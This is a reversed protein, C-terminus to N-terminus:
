QRLSELMAVAMDTAGDLYKKSTPLRSLNAIGFSTAALSAAVSRTDEWVIEGADRARDLPDQLMAIFRENHEAIAAAIAPDRDGVESMAICALCGRNKTKKRRDRWSDVFGVLDSLPSDTQNLRRSHARIRTESYREIALLFLGRKNGFTNYLSQRAIGLDELLQSLSAGRYGHSWFSQVADDVAAQVDFEPPRIGPMMERVQTPEAIPRM